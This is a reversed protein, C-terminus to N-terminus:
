WGHTLTYSEACNGETRVEMNTIIHAADCNDSATPNAADPVSDCEITEDAPVGSLLPAM